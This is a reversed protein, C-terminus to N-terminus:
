GRGKLHRGIPRRRQESEVIERLSDLFRTAIEKAAADVKRVGLRTLRQCIRAEAFYSLETGESSEDFRVKALGTVFGGAGANAEGAITCTVPPEVDFLRLEGKFTAAIPGIAIAATAVGQGGATWEFRECGPLCQKMVASDSFALWLHERSAKFRVTGFMDM